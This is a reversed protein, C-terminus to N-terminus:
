NFLSKIGIKIHRLPVSLSVLKENNGEENDAEGYVFEGTLKFKDPANKFISKWGKATFM